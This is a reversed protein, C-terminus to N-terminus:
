DMTKIKDEAIMEKWEKFKEPRCKKAKEKFKIAVSDGVKVYELCNGWEDYRACIEKQEKKAM